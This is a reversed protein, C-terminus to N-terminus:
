SSFPPKNSGHNGPPTKSTHSSYSFLFPWSQLFAIFWFCTGFGFLAALWLSKNGNIGIKKLMLWIAAVCLSALIISLLSLDFSTGFAAVFPVLLVAPMPPYVVYFNGNNNVIEALSTGSGSLGLRGHLFADALYVFHNHGPPPGKSLLFVLLAVLTIILLKWRIRLSAM